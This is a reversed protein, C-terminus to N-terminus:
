WIFKTIKHRPRSVCFYEMNISIRELRDRQPLPRHYLWGPFIYLKNREPKLRFIREGIIFELEGGENPPDIYFVGSLTSTHLHHHLVPSFKSDNQVYTFLGPKNLRTSVDYFSEVLSEFKSYLLKTLSPNDYLNNHAGEVVCKRKNQLIIQSKYELVIDHVEFTYQHILPNIEKFDMDVIKTIDM